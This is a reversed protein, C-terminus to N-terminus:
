RSNERGIISRPPAVDSRTLSTMEPRDHPTCACIKGQDPLWELDSERSERTIVLRIRPGHV